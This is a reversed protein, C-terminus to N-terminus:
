PIVLTYEALKAGPEFDDDTYTISLKRGSALTSPELEPDVPIIVLREDIEPYIGIGRSLAVPKSAGSASVVVDGFASRTGARTIIMGIAQTGDEATLLQAERIGVSLTTQGIRVIVPISIGFRPKIQVGIGDATDGAVADDISFGQQEDRPVSVALFHSRYEGDPLENDGRAMIRITQSESGQLTVRRPSYRLFPSATKVKATIEPPAGNDFNLLQGEPTMAMDVIKIEYDGADATKNFLGITAISRRGDIVVRKPFLNIDGMGGVSGEPVAAPAPAAAPATDQAFTNTGLTSAFLVLGTFLLKASRNPAPLTM